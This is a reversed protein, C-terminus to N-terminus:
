YPTWTIEKVSRPPVGDLVGEESSYQADMIIYGIQGGQRPLGPIRFRESLELSDAAM